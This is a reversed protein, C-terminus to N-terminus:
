NKANFSITRKIKKVLCHTVKKDKKIKTRLNKLYIETVIKDNKLFLINESLYNIRNIVPAYNIGVLNSSFLQDFHLLLEFTWLIALFQRM